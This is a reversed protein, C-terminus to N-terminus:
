DGYGRIANADRLLTFGQGCLLREVPVFRGDRELYCIGLVLADLSTPSSSAGVNSCGLGFLAASAL